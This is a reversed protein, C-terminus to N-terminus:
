DGEIVCAANTKLAEALAQAGDDGITNNGLNLATLTSNTKLAESLAQVSLSPSSPLFTM